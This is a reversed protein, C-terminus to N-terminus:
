EHRYGARDLKAALQERGTRLHGRVTSDALGLIEAIQRSNFDAYYRLVLIARLRPEMQKLARRVAERHEDHETTQDPEAALQGNTRHVLRQWAARWRTARRHELNCRNVTVRVLWKRLEEAPRDRPRKKWATLYVDQLVDSVASREVGMAAALRALQAAQEQWLADFEVEAEDRV